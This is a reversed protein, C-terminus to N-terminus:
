NQHSRLFGMQTGGHCSENIYELFDPSPFVDNSGLEFIKIGNLDLLAATVGMGFGSPKDCYPTSLGCSPSKDKMIVMSVGALRCLRLAHEAGKSFSATVDEGASNILRAKGSIVDHGDGGMINAPLRPTPLGGSQEPCFPIFYASAVFKVLDSCLSNGGDYRCRMGLLCASIM